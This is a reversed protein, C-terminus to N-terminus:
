PQVEQLQVAWMGPAAASPLTVAVFDGAGDWMVATGDSKIVVCPKGFTLMDPWDGPDEGYIPLVMGPVVSVTAVHPEDGRKGGWGLASGGVDIDFTHRGDICDPCDVDIWDGDNPVHESGGCTDCPRDLSKCALDCLRNEGEPHDGDCEHVILWATGDDNFTIHNHPIVIESGM